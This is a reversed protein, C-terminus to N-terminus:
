WDAGSRQALSHLEARETAFANRSNTVSVAITPVLRRGTAVTASSALKSPMAGGYGHKKLALGLRTGLM